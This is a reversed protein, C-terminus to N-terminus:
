ASVQRLSGLESQTIEDRETIQEIMKTLEGLLRTCEMHHRIFQWEAQHVDQAFDTMDPDTDNEYRLSQAGTSSNVSSLAPSTNHAPVKWIQTSGTNQGMFQIQDEWANEIPNDTDADQAINVPSKRGNISDNPRVHDDDVILTKGKESSSHKSSVPECGCNLNAIHHLSTPEELVQAAETPSHLNEVANNRPEIFQRNEQDRSPGRVRVT